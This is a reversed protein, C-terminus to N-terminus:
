ENEYEVDILKNDRKRKMNKYTRIDNNKTLQKETTLCQRKSEIVNKEQQRENDSNLVDNNVIVQKELTLRKRKLEIDNNEPSRTEKSKVLRKHIGTKYVKYIIFFVISIIIVITIGSYYKQYLVIHPKEIINNLSKLIIM